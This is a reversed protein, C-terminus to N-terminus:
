LSNASSVGIEKCNVNFLVKRNFPVNKCISGQDIPIYTGLVIFIIDSSTRTGWIGPGVNVLPSLRTKPKFTWRLHVVNLSLNQSLKKM